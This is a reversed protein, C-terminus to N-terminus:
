YFLGVPPAALLDHVVLLVANRRLAHHLADLIQDVAHVLRLVGLSQAGGRLLLRAVLRHALLLEGALHLRELLLHQRVGLVELELFRGPRAILEALELLLHKTDLQSRFLTASRASAVPVAQAAPSAMVM